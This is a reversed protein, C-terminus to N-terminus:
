RHKPAGLTGPDFRPTAGPSSSRRLPRDQPGRRPTRCPFLRPRLTSRLVIEGM